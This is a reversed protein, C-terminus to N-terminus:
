VWDLAFSTDGPTASPRKHCFTLLVILIVPLDFGAALAANKPTQSLNSHFSDRHQLDPV